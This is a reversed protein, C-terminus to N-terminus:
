LSPSGFKLSHSSPSRGTVPTFAVARITYAGKPIIGLRQSERLDPLRSSFAGQGEKGWSRWSWWQSWFNRIYNHSPLLSSSFLPSHLPGGHAGEVSIKWTGGINVTDQLIWSRNLTQIRATKNETNDPRELGWHGWRSGWKHPIKNTTTLIWHSIRTFTDSCHRARHILFLFNWNRVANHEGNEGRCRGLCNGQVIYLSKTFCLYIHSWQYPHPSFLM